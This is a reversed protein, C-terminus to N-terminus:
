RGTKVRKKMKETKRKNLWDTIQKKRKKAAKNVNHIPDSNRKKNVQNIASSERRKMEDSLKAANDRNKAHEKEDIIDREYAKAVKKDFKADSQYGQAEARDRRKWEDFKKDNEIASLKWGPLNHRATRSDQIKKREIRAKDGLLSASRGYSKADEYKKAIAYTYAWRGNKWKRSIYKHDSWADRLKGHTLEGGVEVFGQDTLIKSM